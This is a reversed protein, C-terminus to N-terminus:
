SVVCFLWALIHVCPVCLALPRMSAYSMLGSRFVHDRRDGTDLKRRFRFRLEKGVVYRSMQM